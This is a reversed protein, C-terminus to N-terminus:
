FYRSWWEKVVQNLNDGYDDRYLLWIIFWALMTLGIFWKFALDAHRRSMKEDLWRRNAMFLAVFFALIKFPVELYARLWKM